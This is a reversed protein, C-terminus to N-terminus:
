KLRNLEDLLGFYVELEAPTVTYINESHVWETEPRMWSERKVNLMRLSGNELLAEAEWGPPNGGTIWVFELTRHGVLPVLSPPKRQDIQVVRLNPLEALPGLDDIKNCSAMVFSELGIAGELGELSGLYPCIALDLRQLRSLREVGALSKLARSDTIALDELQPLRELADLDPERYRGVSLMRLGQHGHEWLGDLQGQEVEVVGFWELDPLRAFAIDGDWTGVALGRLRTLTDVASADGIDSEIGCGDM